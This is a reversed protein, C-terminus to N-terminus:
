YMDRKTKIIPTNVGSCNKNYVDIYMRTCVYLDICRYMNVDRQIDVHIYAKPYVQMTAVPAISYIFNCASM